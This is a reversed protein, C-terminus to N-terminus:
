AFRHMFVSNVLGLAAFSVITSSGGYSVLPLPIGTVPMIGMTMGANEFVQVMILGLVGVCLLTGFRDRALLAARWIRWAVLAFLGLLGVTGVFGLQEGVATFIFDTQQEPVFALNTQTGQFLGKGAWAGSAIAIKSQQLNYTEPRRDNQDLFATLRARQYPKLVGLHAVTAVAVTALLILVVLHRAPTGAVLLVVLVASGVVLASGLDPQVVVLAMVLAGLVVITAVHRSGLEHHGHCYAAVAIVAVLSAVTSPQLQLSGINFWRQAGKATSGLPSLVAVLGLVTAAYLAPAWESLMRYDVAMTAVMVVLGIVVWLLQHRFFVNPDHGSQAQGTRTASWVMVTGLAAITTSAAILVIDVHRIPASAARKALLRM